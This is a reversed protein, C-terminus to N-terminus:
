RVGDDNDEPTQFFSLMDEFNVVQTESFLAANEKTELENRAIKVKENYCAMFKDIRTGENIDLINENRKYEPINPYEIGLKKLIALMTIFDKGILKSQHQTQVFGDTTQSLEERIGKLKKKGKIAISYNDENEKGPLVMEDNFSFAVGDEGDIEFTDILECVADVKKRDEKKAERGAVVSELVDQLAISADGCINEFEVKFRFGLPLTNDYFERESEKSISCKFRKDNILQSIFERTLESDLMEVCGSQVITSKNKHDKYSGSCSMYPRMGNQYLIRVIERVDEDIYDIPCQWNEM